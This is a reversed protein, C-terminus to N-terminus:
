LPAYDDSKGPLSQFPLGKGIPVAQAGVQFLTAREQVLPQRAACQPVPRGQCGMGFSELGTAQIAWFPFRLQQVQRPDVGVQSLAAPKALDTLHASSGQSPLSVAQTHCPASLRHLDGEVWCVPMQDEERRVALPFFPEGQLSDAGGVQHTFHFGKDTQIM